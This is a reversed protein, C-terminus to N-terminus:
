IYNSFLRDWQTLHKEINEFIPNNWLYAPGYDSHGTRKSWLLYNTNYPACIHHSHCDIIM